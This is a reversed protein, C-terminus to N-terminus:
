VRNLHITCFYIYVVDSNDSENLVDTVFKIQDNKLGALFNNM